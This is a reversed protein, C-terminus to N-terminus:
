PVPVPWAYVGPQILALRHENPFGKGLDEVYVVRYYRGTGQPVEVFDAGALTWPPRIDTFAPVLLQSCSGLESATFTPQALASGVRRGFALNCVTTLRPPEFPPLSGASWVAAILPMPPVIYAM